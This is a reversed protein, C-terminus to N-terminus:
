DLLLKVKADPIRYAFNLKQFEQLSKEIKNIDYSVKRSIIELM